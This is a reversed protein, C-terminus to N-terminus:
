PLNPFHLIINDLKLDRHMIGKQKIADLGIIIQKLVVRAEYEKLIGGRALRFNELDGGNCLELALYYYNLTQTANKLEVVHPSKIDQM